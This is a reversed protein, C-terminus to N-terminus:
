QIAVGMMQEQTKGFWELNDLAMTIQWNLLHERWTLKGGGAGLKNELKVAFRALTIKWQRM